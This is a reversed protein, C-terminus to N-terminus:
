FCLDQDFIRLCKLAFLDGVGPLEHILQEHSPSHFAERLSYLYECKKQSIVTNFLM